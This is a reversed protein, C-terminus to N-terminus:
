LDGVIYAEGTIKVFKEPKVNYTSLLLDYTEKSTHYYGLNKMDNPRIDMNISKLFALITHIYKPHIAGNGKGKIQTITGGDKQVEFTAHPTNKADRLSYITSTEPSYGGVCHAMFFGERTYAAKTLLRVIKNGDFFDHIVEIDNPGDVINKGKKQNTKSWETAKRKADVVSMKQLRKPAADSILYDVVHELEDTTAKNKKLANKAATNIWNLVEANANLYNAYKLLQEM